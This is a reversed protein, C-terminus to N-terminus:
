ISKEQILEPKESFLYEALQKDTDINEPIYIGGVPSQEVMHFDTGAIEKLGFGQAFAKAVFNRNTHFKHGNFVEVGNLYGYYGAKVGNRFPHSQAMFVGNEQALAFLQKQTLTYLVPNDTFFKQDAGYLLYESFYGEPDYARVESGFFPKIGAKLAADRFKEYLSFYFELKEFYTEGPYLAFSAECCHNTLVIGGYGAKKYIPLMEEVDAQACSSGGRSHAHMELKINNM